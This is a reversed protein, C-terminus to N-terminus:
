KDNRKSGSRGRKPKAFVKSWRRTNFSNGAQMGNVHGMEMNISVQEDITSLSKYPQVTKAVVIGM